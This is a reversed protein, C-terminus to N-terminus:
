FRSNRNVHLFDPDPLGRSGGGGGIQFFGSKVPNAKIIADRLAKDTQILNKLDNERKEKLFEALVRDGRPGKVIGHDKKQFDKELSELM